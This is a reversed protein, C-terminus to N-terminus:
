AGAMQVLLERYAGSLPARVAAEAAVLVGAVFAAGQRDAALARKLPPVSTLPTAMFATRASLVHTWDSAVRDALRPLLRAKEASACAWDLLRLHAL